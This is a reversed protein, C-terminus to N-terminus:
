EGEFRSHVEHLWLVALWKQTQLILFDRQRWQVGVWRWAKELGDWKRKGM